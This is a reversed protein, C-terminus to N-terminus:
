FLEDSEGPQKPVPPPLRPPKKGTWPTCWIETWVSAGRTRCRPEWARGTDALFSRSCANRDGHWARCPTCFEDRKQVRQVQCKEVYGRPPPIDARAARVGDVGAGVGGGTELSRPVDLTVISGFAGVLWLARLRM